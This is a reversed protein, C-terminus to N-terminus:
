TSRAASSTPSTWRRTTSSSPSTTRRCATARASSSTRCRGRGAARDRRAGRRQLPVGEGADRLARRATPGGGEYQAIQEDTLRRPPPLRVPAEGAGGGQAARGARRHTEYAKYALGRAILDDIIRNYVDVRKRSSSSSRRQGLAPRALPPRRATPAGGARHQPRPRHRRHPPPVQRRRPPPRPALQVARHACRRRPPLRHAVPRLPHRRHAPMLPRIIPRRDPPLHSRQRAPATPADPQAPPRDRAPPKPRLRLYALTLPGYLAYAVCGIGFAYRHQFVVIMLVALVGVLRAVSRRGRLYRNVLHPYRIASVM